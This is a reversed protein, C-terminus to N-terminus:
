RAEPETELLTVRRLLNDILKNQQEITRRQKQVENLLMAPLQHYQVTDIQGDNGRM